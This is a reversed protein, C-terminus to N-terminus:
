SNHIQVWQAFATLFNQMFEATKEVFKGNEDFASMINGLYAEPQQMMPTNLFVMVQRLAHNAGFAGMAGPTSSIVAAPKTDWVSEGYPRSGVDLANKLAGSISRNYEPTIFLFGNADKLQSRFEQWAAPPNATDLDENYLALNGIEVIEMELSEPQMRILEQAIKRNYSDKRLSGVIIAIKHNKM